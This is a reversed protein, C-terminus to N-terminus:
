EGGDMKVKVPTLQITEFPIDIHAPDGEIVSLM